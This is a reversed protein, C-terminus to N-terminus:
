QQAGRGTATGPRLKSFVGQKFGRPYYLLKLWFPCWIKICFLVDCFRQFQVLCTVNHLWPEATQQFRTLCIHWDIVDTLSGGHTTIELHSFCMVVCFTDRSVEACRRGVEQRLTPTEKERADAM